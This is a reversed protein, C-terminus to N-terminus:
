GKADMDSTTEQKSSLISDQSRSPPLLYLVVALGEADMNSTPRKAKFPPLLDQTVALEDADM